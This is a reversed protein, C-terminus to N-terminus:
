PTTVCCYCYLVSFLRSDPKGMFAQSDGLFQCKASDPSPSSIGTQPERFATYSPNALEVIVVLEVREKEVVSGKALSPVTRRSAKKAIATSRGLEIIKGPQRKM